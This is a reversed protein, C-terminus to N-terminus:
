PPRTFLLYCKKVYLFRIKETINMKLKQDNFLRPDLNTNVQFAPILEAEINTQYSVYKKFHAGKKLSV